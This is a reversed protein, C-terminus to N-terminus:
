IRDTDFIVFICCRLFYPSISLEQLCLTQAISLHASFARLRLFLTKAYHLFYADRRESQNQRMQVDRLLDLMIQGGRMRYRRTLDGHIRDHLTLGRERAVYAKALHFNFQGIHGALANQLKKWPRECLRRPSPVFTSAPTTSMEAGEV